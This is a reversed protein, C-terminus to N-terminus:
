TTNKYINTQGKLSQRKQWQTPPGEVDHVAILFVGESIRGLMSECGVRAM